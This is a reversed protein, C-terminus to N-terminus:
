ELAIRAASLEALDKTITEQRAQNFEFTFDDILEQASESANRMTMMRAAHESANAELLIQFLQTEVLRVLTADLVAKPSPEFLFETLFPDNPVRNPQTKGGGEQIITKLEEQTIPLLLRSKAQQVLPSYYDTWVVLVRKYTGKTFEEMAVKAIGLIDAVAPHGKPLPMSAIIPVKMRRFAEEAKKGIAIYDFIMGPTAVAVKMSVDVVRTNLGGALGRDSAFTVILGKSGERNALLPHLNPDVTKALNTLLEWARLAYTRTALAASVARRMKSAAVLEMAKTIKMIQRVGKIRISLERTAQSM